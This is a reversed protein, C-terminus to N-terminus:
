AIPAADLLGQQRLMTLPNSIQAPDIGALLAQQNQTEPSPAVAAAAAGEPAGPAGGAGGTADGALARMLQMHAGLMQLTAQASMGQRRQKDMAVAANQKAVVSALMAQQAAAAQRSQTTAALAIQERSTKKQLAMQETATKTAQRTAYYTYGASALLGVLMIATMPDM